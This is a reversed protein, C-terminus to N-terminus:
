HHQIEHADTADSPPESRRRHGFRCTNRDRSVKVRFDGGLDHADRLRRMPEFSLVPGIRNQLLRIFDGIAHQM